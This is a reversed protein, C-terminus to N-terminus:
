WSTMNQTLRNIVHGDEDYGLAYDNDSGLNDGWRIGSIAVNDASVATEWDVGVPDSPLTFLAGQRLGGAKPVGCGDIWEIAEKYMKALPTEAGGDGALFSRALGPTSNILRWAAIVLTHWEGEPPIAAATVSYPYRGATRIAGRVLKIAETLAEDRRNDEATDLYDGDLTGEALNQNPDSQTAATLVRRVDSGVLETWNTAM